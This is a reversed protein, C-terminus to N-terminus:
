NKIIIMGIQIIIILPNFRSTLCSTKSQFCNKLYFGVCELKKFHKFCFVGIFKAPIESVNVHYWDVLSFRAVKVTVRGCEIKAINIKLINTQFLSFSSNSQPSANSMSGSWYLALLLSCPFTQFYIASAKFKIEVSLVNKWTSAQATLSPNAKSVLRWASFSFLSNFCLPM